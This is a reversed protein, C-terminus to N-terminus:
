SQDPSIRSCSCNECAERLFQVAAGPSTESRERDPGVTKRPADSVPDATPYIRSVANFPRLDEFPGPDPKPPKYNLWANFLRRLFEVNSLECDDAANRFKQRFERPVKFNLDFLDDDSMPTVEQRQKAWIMKEPLYIVSFNSLYTNVSSSYCGALDFFFAM